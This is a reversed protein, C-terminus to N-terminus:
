QHKSQAPFWPSLSSHILCDRGKLFEYDLPHTLCTFLYIVAWPHAQRLPSLPAPRPPAGHIGTCPATSTLSAKHPAAM